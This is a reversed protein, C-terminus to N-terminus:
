SPRERGRQARKRIARFEAPGKTLRQKRQEQEHKSASEDSMRDITQHAFHSAKSAQYKINARTAPTAANPVQTTEARLGTDVLRKIAEAPSLGRLKAWTSLRRATAPSLRVTVNGASGRRPASKRDSRPAMRGSKGASEKRVKGGKMM